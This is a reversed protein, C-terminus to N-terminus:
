SSNGPRTRPSSLSKRLEHRKEKDRITTSVSNEISILNLRGQRTAQASFAVGAESRGM